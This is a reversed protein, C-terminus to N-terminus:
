LELVQAPIGDVLGASLCQTSSTRQGMVSKLASRFQGAITIHGEFNPATPLHIELLNRICATEETCRLGTDKPGFGVALIGEAGSGWNFVVM